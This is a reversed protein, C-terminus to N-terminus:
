HYFCPDGQTLFTLELCPLIWYEIDALGNHVMTKHHSIPHREAASGQERPLFPFLEREWGAALYVADLSPGPHAQQEWALLSNQIM